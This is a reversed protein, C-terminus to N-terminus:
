LIVCSQKNCPPFQARCYAKCSQHDKTCGDRQYTSNAISMCGNFDVECKHLCVNRQKLNLDKNALVVNNPVIICLVATGIVIFNKTFRMTTGEIAIGESPHGVSGM